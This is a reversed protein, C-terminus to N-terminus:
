LTFMHHIVKTKEDLKEYKAVEGVCHTVTKVSYCHDEADKARTNGNVYCLIYDKEHNIKGNEVVYFRRDHEAIHRYYKGAFSTLTESNKEINM